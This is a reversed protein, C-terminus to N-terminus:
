SYGLTRLCGSFTKNLTDITTDPLAKSYEGPLMRRKHTGAQASSPDVEQMFYSSLAKYEDQNLHFPAAFKRLWEEPQSFMDEYKLFTCNSHKYFQDIYISFREQYDISRELVFSVIGEELRQTRVEAPIGGHIKTFSHFMSVLGDRPTRLCVLMKHDLEVQIPRHIPGIIGSEIADYQEKAKEWNNISAGPFTRLHPSDKISEAANNPSYYPPQWDSDSKIDVIKRMLKHLLMSAAKHVTFVGIKQQSLHEM